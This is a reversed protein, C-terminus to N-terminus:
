KTFNWKLKKLRYALMIRLHNVESEMIYLLATYGRGVPVKTSYHCSCLLAKM